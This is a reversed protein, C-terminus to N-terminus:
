EAHTRPWTRSHLLSFTARQVLSIVRPLRDVRRPLCEAYVLAVRILWGPRDPVEGAAQELDALAQDWRGKAAFARARGLYAEPDDPDISL